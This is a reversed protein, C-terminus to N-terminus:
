RVRGLRRSFTRPYERLRSANPQDPSASSWRATPISPSAQSPPFEAVASMTIPLLPVMAILAPKPIPISYRSWVIPRRFPLPRLLIADVVGFITLNAGVCVALTVLATVTFRPTKRLLRAAHRLQRFLEDFPRLGRAERCEEQASNLSGFEVRARRAAEQHAVGSRVLDDTYQQIHFRLEETMGQEFDRRSKLVRWLSRLRGLM